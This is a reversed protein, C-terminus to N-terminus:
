RVACPMWRTSLKPFSLWNQATNTKQNFLQPKLQEKFKDLKPDETNTAWRDYLDAILEYDAHLKEIYDEDFDARKYEANQQKENKGSKELRKIIARLDEVCEEFTVKHKRQKTKEDIDLEKNVDIQPCVFITDNNWMKIM